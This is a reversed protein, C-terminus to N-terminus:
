KFFSFKKNCITKFILFKREESNVACMSAMENLCTPIFQESTNLKYKTSEWISGNLHYLSWDLHPTPQLSPGQNDLRFIIKSTNNIQISGFISKITENPETGVYYWGLFVHRPFANIYLKIMNLTEITLIKNEKDLPVNLAYKIKVHKEDYTGLLAGCV